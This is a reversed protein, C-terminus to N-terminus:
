SGTPQGSERSSHWPLSHPPLTAVPGCFLSLSLSLSLSLTSEPVASDDLSLPLLSFPMGPPASTLLPPSIGLDLLSGVKAAPAGHCRTPPPPLPLVVFSLSHIQTGETSLRTTAPDPDAHFTGKWPSGLNPDVDVTGKWPSGTRPRRTPPSLPDPSLYYLDLSLTHPQTSSLAHIITSSYPSATSAWPISKYLLLSLRFVNM